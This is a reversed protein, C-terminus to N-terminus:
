YRSLKDAPRVPVVTVRDGYPRLLRLATPTPIGWDQFTLGIDDRESPQRRHHEIRSWSTGGAGAVDIVRVGAALLLEVDDPSVGAGVEKVLVPRDLERRTEEVITVLKRIEM